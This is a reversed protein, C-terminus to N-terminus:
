FISYNKWFSLAKSIITKQSPHSTQFISSRKWRGRPGIETMRLKGFSIKTFASMLCSEGFFFQSPKIFISPICKSDTDLPGNQGGGRCRKPNFLCDSQKQCLVIIFLYVFLCPLSTFSTWTPRIIRSFETKNNHFQNSSGNLVEELLRHIMKLPFLHDYMFVILFFRVLKHKFLAELKAIFWFQNHFQSFKHSMCEELKPIGGHSSDFYTDESYM